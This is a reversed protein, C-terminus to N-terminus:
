RAGDHTFVLKVTKLICKIDLLISRSGMYEIDYDLKSQPDLEYGGNVQALGTLGPKVALRDRFNPIDREFESYFFEREPRPGVLSMDGVLINWMQPLEDIRTKRLFRGVRTARQDSAIAWQPGDKEADIYMSRFKYMMFPKEDKGLREQKFLVPGKSDLKIAIAIIPIFLFLVHGVVIAFVIDFARKFFLYAKGGSVKVIEPDIGKLIKFDYTEEINSVYQANGTEMAVVYQFAWQKETDGPRREEQKGWLDGIRCGLPMM